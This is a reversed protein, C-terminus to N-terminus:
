IIKVIISNINIEKIMVKIKDTVKYLFKKKNFIIGKEKNININDINNCLFKKPVFAYAGNQILRVKIGFFSIDIIESIFIKKYVLINKFYQFYLFNSIDKKAQKNLYRKQNMQIHINNLSKELSIKKKYIISKILRHNILDGFKRMPSTWTAYRKVGLAFHPGPKINFLSILQYKKIRNLIISLKLDKLKRFINKYGELTTLYSANCKINHEKLLKIIKNLKNTNFGYYINYIGFNSNKYLFNSACINATIMVAEIMKHAIRKKEIIINLLNGKEGFIFKYDINNFNTINKNNWKKRYLYFKYLFLIQKEIKLNNPKWNGIKEIWNSVDNYNLKANSKIWGTFFIIKKSLLGNHNIIMKCILAPRKKKFNLSCFNESLIKPLLSITLGPLYNTFIRQSAIQYILSNPKIYSTPDAIAVYILLKKESIEEIYLADDIDQTDKNDITIFCLKTLDKRYINEELFKIKECLSNSPSDISLNYKLLINWWPLLYKNDINLFNTVEAVFIDKEGNLPHRIIKAVVKDNNQLNKIFSQKVFCQIINKCFIKKKPIIYFIDNKRKIKGKFINISSKILKIPIVKILNYIDNKALIYDGEMVYKLYSESIHYIYNKNTELIVLKKNLIKVYGKILPLNNTFKKKLQLLVTNNYFM